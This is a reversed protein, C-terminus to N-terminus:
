SQLIYQLKEKPDLGYRICELATTLRAIETEKQFLYYNVSSMSAPYKTKTKKYIDNLIQIYTQEMTGNNLSDWVFKYHSSKLLSAFEETTSANILKLLQEKSFRYNVPIIYSLIDETSLDYMVKSRYIWMINLLDIETGLRETVSKLTNGKVLRDKRKWIRKFYYIDLQMEYDFPTVDPQDQLKTFIPYFETHKLQNVFEDLSQSASLTTIDINSHRNFFDQFLSLDYTREKNYIMHICNKLITVEHRLFVLELDKRQDLNAFRFLKTYDYYFGFIFFREADFRHLKHEDYQKFIEHYGPHQKLFVIFDAVTDINAIKHYEEQSILNKSMAKIKTNIGNFSLIRFM